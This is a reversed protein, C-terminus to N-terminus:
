FCITFPQFVHSFVHKNARKRELLPHRVFHTKYPIDYTKLNKLQQTSSNILQKTQSNM